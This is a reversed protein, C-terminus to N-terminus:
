CPTIEKIPLNTIHVVSLLLPLSLKIATQYEPVQSLFHGSDLSSKHVLIHRPMLPAMVKTITQGIKRPKRDHSIFCCSLDGGLNHASHPLDKM